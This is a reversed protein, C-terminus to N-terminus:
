SIDDRWPKLGVYARLPRYYVRYSPEYYRRIDEHGYEYRMNSFDIEPFSEKTSGTKENHLLCAEGNCTFSSGGYGYLDRQNILAVILGHLSGLNLWGSKLDNTVCPRDYAKGMDGLSIPASWTHGPTLRELKVLGDRVEDRLNLTVGNDRSPKPLYCNGTTKALCLLVLQQYGEGYPDTVGFHKGLYSLKPFIFAGESGPPLRTILYDARPIRIGPFLKALRGRITPMSLQGRFNPDHFREIAQKMLSALDRRFMRIRGGHSLFEQTKTAPSSCEAVIEGMLRVLEERQGKTMKRQPM